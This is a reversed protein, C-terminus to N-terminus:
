GFNGGNVWDAVGAEAEIKVGTHGDIYITVVIKYEQREIDSPRYGWATFAKKLEMPPTQAIYENGERCLIHLIPLQNNTYRLSVFDAKLQLGDLACDMRHERDWLPSYPFQKEGLIYGKEGNLEYNAAGNELRIRYCPEKTLVPPLNQWKVTVRLKCHVNAMYTIFRQENRINAASLTFRKIGYYLPDANGGNVDRVHLMFSDQTSGKSPTQLQTANAANGVTVMTYSGAELGNLSQLQLNDGPPIERLFREHADFLFHRLTHINERFQEQGEELYRYEMVVRECCLDREDEVDCATLSLCCLGLISSRLLPINGHLLIGASIARCAAIHFCLLYYTLPQLM